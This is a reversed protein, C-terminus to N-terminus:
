TSGAIPTSRPRSGSRRTSCIAWMPGTSIACTSRTTRKRRGFHLGEQPETVSVKAPIGAFLCILTQPGVHDLRLLGIPKGAADEAQVELGPWGSVVASRILMGALPLTGDDDPSPTDIGLLRDRVAHTLRLTGDAFSARCRPRFGGNSGPRCGSASLAM